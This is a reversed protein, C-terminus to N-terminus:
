FALEEQTILNAIYRLIKLADDSTVTGDHTVDANRKGEESLKATLDNAGYRCILVADSVDISKSGDADGWYIQDEVPETVTTTTITTTEVAPETTTEQPPQSGDLIVPTEFLVTVSDLAYDKCNNDWWSQIQLYDCAFRWDSDFVGASVSETADTGDENKEGTPKNWQIDEEAFLFQYAETTNGYTIQQYMWKYEDPNDYPEEDGFYGNFAVTVGFCSNAGTAKGHGKILVGNIKAIDKYEKLDIYYPFNGDGNESIDAADFSVSSVANTAAGTMTKFNSEITTDYWKLNLRDFYNMDGANSTDWLIPCIGDFGLATSFLTQLWQQIATQDKGEETLVGCEGIIVPIGKAAFTQSLKNIDNKMELIEADTGWTASYGWSTGQEAISFPSPSYYHIEVALMNASDAPMKFSSSVAAELNTNNAPIVLLRKANNGGTARVTDVFAQAMELEVDYTWCIENWGAFALENGYDAFYEAIQTWLGTFKDKQSTGQWLWAGNVTSKTANVTASNADNTSAGDHHVNIVVHLGDAICWDIVEKIRALYATNIKGNADLNETWTIPIRITDFGTAAINDIMAKTTKPNGWGSETDVYPDNSVWNACAGSDFSNGLNWGMGMEEVLTIADTAASAPLEPIQFTVAGLTMVASIAGATIQKMISKM